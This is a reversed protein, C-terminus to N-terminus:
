GISHGALVDPRVGWSALLKFLAVEIAFLGPQAYETTNLLDGDGFIVDKLQGGFAQCVEDFAEAFVPFAEYLERGMGVRQSGQGTFLFALLGGNAVAQIAPQELGALLSERDSGVVAARHTFASRSSTLAAGVAAVDLSADAEVFGRLRE